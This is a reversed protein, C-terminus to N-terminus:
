QWQREPCEAQEVIAGFGKHNDQADPPEGRVAITKRFRRSMATVDQPLFSFRGPFFFATPPPRSPQRSPWPVTVLLSVLTVLRRNSKRITEVRNIEFKMKEKDAVVCKALARCPSLKLAKLLREKTKRIADYAMEPDGLAIAINSYSVYRGRAELLYKTLFFLQTNGLDCEEDRWRVHFTEEDAVPYDDEPMVKLLHAILQQELQLEEKEWRVLDLEPILKPVESAFLMEYGHAVWAHLPTWIKAEWETNNVRWETEGLVDRCGLTALSAGLPTMGLNLDTIDKQIQRYKRLREGNQPDTSGAKFDRPANARIVAEQYSRMRHIIAWVQAQPKTEHRKDEAERALKEVLREFESPGATKAKTRKTM